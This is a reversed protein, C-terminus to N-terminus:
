LRSFPRQGTMIGARAALGPPTAPLIDVVGEIDEQDDEAMVDGGWSLPWKRGVTTAM